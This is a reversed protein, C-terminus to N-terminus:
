MLLCAPNISNRNRERELVSSGGRLYTHTHGYIRSPSEHPIHAYWGTSRILYKLDYPVTFLLVENINVVAEQQSEEEEVYVDHIPHAMFDGVRTAM